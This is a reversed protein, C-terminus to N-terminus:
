RLNVAATDSILVGKGKLLGLEHEYLRTLRTREQESFMEFRTAINTSPLTQAKPFRARAERLAEFRAITRAPLRTTEAPDAILPVTVRTGALMSIYAEENGRYDEYRWVRLDPFFDRIREVLGLWVDKASLFAERTRELSVKDAAHRLAESYASAAFDAPNRVSLFAIANTRSITKLRRELNPYVPCICTDEIPGLWNEESLLVVPADSRTARRFRRKRFARKWFIPETLSRLEELPTYDIGKALLEERQSKLVRQIHTTATKHVGLHYRWQDAM